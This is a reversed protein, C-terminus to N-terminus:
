LAVAAIPRKSCSQQCAPSTHADEKLILDHEEAVARMMAISRTENFALQCAGRMIVSEDFGASALVRAFVDFWTHVSCDKLETRVTTCIEDHDDCAGHRLTIILRQSHPALM